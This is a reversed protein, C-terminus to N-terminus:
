LWIVAKRKMQHSPTFCICIQSCGSAGAWRVRLGEDQWDCIIADVVFLCLCNLFQNPSISSDFPRRCARKQATFDTCSCMCLFSLFFLAKCTCRFSESYKSILLGHFCPIQFSCPNRFIAFISKEPEWNHKGTQTAFSCQNPSNSWFTARDCLDLVGTPQWISDCNRNTYIRSPFCGRSDSSKEASVESLTLHWLGAKDQVCNVPLVVFTCSMGVYKGDQLLDM